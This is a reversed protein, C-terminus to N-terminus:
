THIYTHRYSVYENQYRCIYIYICIYIYMYIYVYSIRGRLFSMWHNSKLCTNRRLKALYLNITYEISKYYHKACMNHNPIIQSLCMAHNQNMIMSSRHSLNTLLIQKNQSHRPVVRVVRQRTALDGPRSDWIPTTAEIGLLTLNHYELVIFQHM